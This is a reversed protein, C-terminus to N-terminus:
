WWCGPSGRRARAPWFVDRLMAVQLERRLPRALAPALRRLAGSLRKAPVVAWTEPASM